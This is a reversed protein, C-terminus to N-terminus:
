FAALWDSHKEEPVKLEALLAKALEIQKESEIDMAAIAAMKQQLIEGVPIPPAFADDFGVMVNSLRAM